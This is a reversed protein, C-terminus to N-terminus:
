SKTGPVKQFARKAHLFVTNRARFLFLRPLRILFPCSLYPLFVEVVFFLRALFRAVSFFHFRIIVSPAFLPPPRPRILFPPLTPMTCAVKARRYDQARVSFATFAWCGLLHTASSALGLNALAGKALASALATVGNDGIRNYSLELKKLNSVAQRFRM